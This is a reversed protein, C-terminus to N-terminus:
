KIKEIRSNSPKEADYMIKISDGIKGTKSFYLDHEHRSIEQMKIFEKTDVEYKYKIHINEVTPSFDNDIRNTSIKEIIASTSVGNKILNEKKTYTNYTLVCICVLLLGIVGILKKNM